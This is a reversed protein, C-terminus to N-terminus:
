SHEGARAVTREVFAAFEAPHSLHAGHHAGAIEVLEAGPVHEAVWQPGSRQHAKSLEGRGVVVPVHIDDPAWPPHARLDSLEGVLAAGEARRDHKTREPLREWRHDGLMRRLFREGADAPNGAAGEAVARSGASSTPWWDLWSLPAEYVGVAVVSQPHRAATALVVNGGYSHGVAVARRGGLVELLDAVQQDMGFPGEHPRSRGYGRRDYRVVRLHALRRAVRAFGACRDMSGHLLAVLPAGEPGSEEVHLTM